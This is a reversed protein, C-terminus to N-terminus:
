NLAWQPFFIVFNATATSRAHPPLPPAPPADSGNPGKAMVPAIPPQGPHGGSGNGARSPRQDHERARGCEQPTACEGFPGPYSRRRLPRGTPPLPPTASWDGTASGLALQTWRCHKLGTSGNLPVQLPRLAIATQRPQIAPLLSLRLRVWPKYPSSAWYCHCSQYNFGRGGTDDKLHLYQTGQQM